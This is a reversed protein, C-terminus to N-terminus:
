LDLQGHDTGELNRAGPWAQLGLCYDGSVLTREPESGAYVWIMAMLGDSQNLFCHPKGEPVFATDYNSLEYEKGQVRCVSQGAVITISEDFKHIHCPLATGPEFEGYGGCIGVSGFRAAFLDYFRTGDSLPYMQTHGFRMLREPESDNPVGESRDEDVYPQDVSSRAPDANSFASHALVSTRSDFNAVSHARGEPVYMCDLRRLRYRRGEVSVDAQGDLITIAEGCNHFHYPLTSGPPFTATGTAIGRARCNASVMIRLEVPLFEALTASRGSAIFEQIASDATREDKSGSQM